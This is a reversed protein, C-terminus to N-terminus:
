RPEVAEVAVATVKYEPTDVIADRVPSTMRNIFTEATHFTAFVTGERLAPDVHLPLQTSGRRSRVRVRDGDGLGLREADAPSIDLTDTPRLKVNPTRMTMTGANFQYLSRGTVLLFPYEDSVTEVTPRYDIRQLAARGGGTFTTQHLLSTGPHSEDPCPWQLGATELRAYTIGAAAPWVRRIEEWIEAPSAFSFGSESGMARAVDQVIQWDPRAEGIPELAARVRQVRREANMFTGDKEFSSCAPLFVHAHERATENLFLDQVVLLDLGELAARTVAADPNTLLIDYGIAWLAKLEGREAADMMQMLNSGRETPLPTGWVSEFRGRAQEIPQYGTLHSPECGMQASGQVNNQGRLPNVGSGPKGVNGTLLALNVLAEVGETGQAHETVGLGHVILAPRTEGYIRAARRIDAAAVGCIEAAREPTWQDLFTRLESWGEIREALFAEDISGEEILVHAIANLLPINTGPRLQLHADAYAALEIRRPDIIVLRAGRLAAQKIRAGVIPHNETPNAGCVLIASAREIDDFSSTAAGTGLMAKMAAATPAHCVRACCDVNHTGLVVRAFKQILYNDENTARASGLIGVSHAGHAGVIRRLEAAVFAIAEEWTVERWAGDGRIMPRTGRDAAHVFDFAYRGKVCLHGRAVPADLAPRVSVLRQDRTGALMECGVGCYPCTTRTWRTAEGRELVSVDELAGSPCTDVCAGCSTCESDRLTPATRPAMRTRDGRDWAAWVFQGQVEECIRVCRYCDICRSMDVRIYPHTTDLLAPDSEGAAVGELGHARLLRHFPKEPQRLVADRPYDRALLRLLVVRQADLAGTRTRISMGDRVPTDCATVPRSYGDVEVLCLRCGGFPALREDDCLTPVDRGCRRIQELITAGRLLDHPAGDITVGPM